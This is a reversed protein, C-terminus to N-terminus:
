HRRSPIVFGMLCVLAVSTGSLVICMALARGIMEPARNPDRALERVLLLNVGLTAVFTFMGTFSLVYQYEGFVSVEWIRAAAVAVIFGSVRALGYSSLLSIANKLIRGPQQIM